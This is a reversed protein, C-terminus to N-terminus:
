LLGRFDTLRAAFGGLLVLGLLVASVLVVPHRQRLTSHMQPALLLGSLLIALISWYAYRVDSAVGVVVYALLYLEGSVLLALGARGAVSSRGDRAMLWFAIGAAVWVIPWGLFNKKIYDARVERAVEAASARSWPYVWPAEVGCGPAYRCHKAPVLFFMESNFVRLRHDLYALPHSLVAHMWQRGLEQRAPSGTPGLRESVERCYGWPSFTDWFYPTYCRQVDALRLGAVPPLVGADGSQRAIGAMDFLQLSNVAGSDQAGIVRHNIVGSIAVALVTILASWLVTAWLKREPKDFFLFLLLPGLAFVANTRVLAGYALLLLATALAALPPRRGQVRYWALLGFGAILASAMGVDKWIGGNYFVLVPFAGALVVLLATRVRGARALGDALLGLGLWHLGLHLILMPAPGHIVRDLLTWLVAMVPPHWDTYIGSRVEGYQLWSDNNMTGPYHLGLNIFFLLVTLAALLGSRARPTRETWFQTLLPWRGGREAVTPM